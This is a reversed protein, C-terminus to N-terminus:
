WNPEVSFALVHRLRNTPPRASLVSLHACLGVSPCVPLCVLCFLRVTSLFFPARIDARSGAPPLRLSQAADGCRLPSSVPLCAPLCVPLRPSRASISIMRLHGGCFRRSLPLQQQAAGRPYPLCVSPSDPWCVPLCAPPRASLLFFPAYAGTAFDVRCFHVAVGSRWSSLCTSACALLAPLVLSPRECDTEPSRCSRAM